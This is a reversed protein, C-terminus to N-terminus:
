LCFYVWVMSIMIGQVHLGLIRSPKGNIAVLDINFNCVRVVWPELNRLFRVINLIQGILLRPKGYVALFGLDNFDCDRLVRLNLIVDFDFLTSIEVM